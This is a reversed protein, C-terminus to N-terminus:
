GDELMRWCGDGMRLCGVGMRWGGGAFMVGRVEDVLCVGAVDLM